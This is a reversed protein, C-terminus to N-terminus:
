FEKTSTTQPILFVAFEFRSMKAHYFRAHSQSTSLHASINTEQREKCSLPPNSEGPKGISLLSGGSATLDGRISSANCGLSPASPYGTLTGMEQGVKSM